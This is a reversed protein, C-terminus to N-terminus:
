QSYPRISMHFDIAPAVIDRMGVVDVSSSIKPPGTEKVVEPLTESYV